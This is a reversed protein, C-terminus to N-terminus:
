EDGDGGKRQAPVPNCPSPQGDGEFHDAHEGVEVVPLRRRGVYPLEHMATADNWHAPRYADRADGEADSVFGDPLRVFGERLAAIEDESMGEARLEDEDWLTWPEDAPTRFEADRRANSKLRDAIWDHVRGTLAWVWVVPLWAACALLWGIEGDEDGAREDEHAEASLAPPDHPEVAVLEGTVDPDVPEFFWPLGRTRKREAVLQQARVFTEDAATKYETADNRALKAPGYMVLAGAVASVTSTAVFMLATM